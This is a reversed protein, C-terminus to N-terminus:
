VVVLPAVVQLLMRLSAELSSAEEEPSSAELSSAMDGQFQREEELVLIPEVGVLL